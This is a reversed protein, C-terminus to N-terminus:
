DRFLRFGDSADWFNTETSTDKAMKPEPILAEPLLWDARADSTVYKIGAVAM